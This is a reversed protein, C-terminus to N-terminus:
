LDLTCSKATNLPLTTLDLWQVRLQDMLVYINRVQLHFHLKNNIKQLKKESLVHMHM